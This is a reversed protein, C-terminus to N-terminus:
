VLKLYNLGEGYFKPLKFEMLNNKHFQEIEKLFDDQEEKTGSDESSQNYDLMVSNNVLSGAETDEM